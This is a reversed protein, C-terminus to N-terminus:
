SFGFAEGTAVQDVMFENMYIVEPCAKSANFLFECKIEVGAQGAPTSANLDGNDLLHFIAENRILVNQVHLNHCLLLHLKLLNTVRLVVCDDGM